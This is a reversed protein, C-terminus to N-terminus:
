LGWDKLDISKAIAIQTSTQQYEDQLVEEANKSKPKYTDGETAGFSVSADMKVLEVMSFFDYPWNYSYEPAVLKEIQNGTGDVGTFTKVKFRTDDTSEATKDFYIYIARQLVKFVKLQINDPLFSLM